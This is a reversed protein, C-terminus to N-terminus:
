TDTPTKDWRNRPAYGCLWNLAKHREMAISTAESYQEATIERYPRGFAPFDDSIVAPIDGKEAARHATIKIIDEFTMGRPPFVRREQLQRTRSRWHWLEALARAHELSDRERLTAKDLSEAGQGEPVLQLHDGDAQVDYPPLCPLYGLAWLLCELSEMMWFVNVISQRGCAQSPTRIFRKEERTMQSWVGSRLLYEEKERTRESCQHDFASREERTWTHFDGAGSQALQTEMGTVVQWKLAVARRFV